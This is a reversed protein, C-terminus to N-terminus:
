DLASSAGGVAAKRGRPAGRAFGSGPEARASRLAPQRSAGIGRVLPLGSRRQHGPDASLSSCGWARGQALELWSNENRTSRQAITCAHTGPHERRQDIFGARTRMGCLGHEHSRRRSALDPLCGALGHPVPYGLGSRAAFPACFPRVPSARKGTPPEGHEALAQARARAGFALACSSAGRRPRRRM